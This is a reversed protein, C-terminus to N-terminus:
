PEQVTDPRLRGPRRFTAFAVGIIILIGGALMSPGLREGLFVVGGAVSCVPVLLLFPAVVHLQYRAVLFYWTGVGAVTMVVGLYAVQLWVIPSAELLLDVHGAEFVLSM